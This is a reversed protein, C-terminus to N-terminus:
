TGATAKVNNPKKNGKGSEKMPLSNTNANLAPRRRTLHFRYVGAGPATLEPSHLTGTSGDGDEDRDGPSGVYCMSRGASFGPTRDLAHDSVLFLRSAKPNGAALAQAAGAWDRPRACGRCRLRGGRPGPPFEPFPNLFQTSRHSRAKIM